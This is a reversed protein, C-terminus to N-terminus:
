SHVSYESPLIYKLNSYRKLSNCEDKIYDWSSNFSYVPPSLSNLVAIFGDINYIYHNVFEDALYKKEANSKNSVDGHLAHELNRSMFTARFNLNSMNSEKCIRDLLMSKRRNRDIYKDVDNTIIYDETYEAPVTKDYLIHNDPIFTGDTDSIFVVSLIDKKNIGYYSLHKLAKGIVKGVRSCINSLTTKYDSTIDGRIIQFYIKNKDFLGEFLELLANEDTIGEVIFLIVKKEM